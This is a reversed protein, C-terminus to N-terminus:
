FRSLPGDLELVALGGHLYLNQTRKPHFVSM